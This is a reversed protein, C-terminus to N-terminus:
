MIQILIESLHNSRACQDLVVNPSADSLMNPTTSSLQVNRDPTKIPLEVQGAESKRMVAPTVTSVVPSASKQVSFTHPNSSSLRRICGVLQLAGRVLIQLLRISKKVAKSNELIKRRM